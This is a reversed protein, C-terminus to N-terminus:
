NIESYLCLHNSSKLSFSFRELNRFHDEPCEFLMRLEYLRDAMAEFHVAQARYIKQKVKFNFVCFYFM